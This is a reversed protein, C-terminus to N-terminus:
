REIERICFRFSFAVIMLSAFCDLAELEDSIPGDVMEAFYYGVPQGSDLSTISVILLIFVYYKVFNILTFMASNSAMAIWYRKFSLSRSKLYLCRLYWFILAIFFFQYILRLTTKNSFLGVSDIAEKEVYIALFALLPLSIILMSLHVLHSILGISIHRHIFVRQPNAINLKFRSKTLMLQESLCLYVHRVNTVDCKSKSHTTEQNEKEPQSSAPSNVFQM